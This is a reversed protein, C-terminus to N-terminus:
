WVVTARVIVAEKIRRELNAALGAVVMTSRRTARGMM